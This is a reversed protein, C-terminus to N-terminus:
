MIAANSFDRPTSLLNETAFKTQEITCAFPHNTVHYTRQLDHDLFLPPVGLIQYLQHRRNLTSQISREAFSLIGCRDHETSRRACRQGRQRRRGSLIPLHINQVFLGKSLLHLAGHLHLALEVFLDPILHLRVATLLNRGCTPTYQRIKGDAIVDQNPARTRRLPEVGFNSM